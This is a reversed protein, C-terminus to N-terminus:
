SVARLNGARHCAQYWEACGFLRRRQGVIGGQGHGGAHPRLIDAQRQLHCSFQLRPRNPHVAVVAQISSRTKTTGLLTATTSHSTSPHTKHGREKSHKKM